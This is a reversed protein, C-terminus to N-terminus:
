RSLEHQRQNIERSKRAKPAKKGAAKVAESPHTAQSVDATM